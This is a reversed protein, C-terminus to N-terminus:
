SEKPPFKADFARVVQGLETLNMQFRRAAESIDEAEVVARAAEIDIGDWDLIGLSKDIEWQRSAPLSGYSDPRQLAAMCMEFETKRAM